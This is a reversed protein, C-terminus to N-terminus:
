RQHQQTSSGLFWSGSRQQQPMHEVRTQGQQGPANRRREGRAAHPSVSWRGNPAVSQRTPWERRSGSASGGRRRRGDSSQGSAGWSMRRSQQTHEHQLASQMQSQQASKTPGYRPSMLIRWSSSLFFFPAGCASSITLHARGRAATRAIRARPAPPTRPSLPLTARLAARASKRDPPAHESSAADRPPRGGRSIV